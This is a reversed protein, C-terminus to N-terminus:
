CQSGIVKLFILGGAEPQGQGVTEKSWRNASRDHARGPFMALWINQFSLTYM